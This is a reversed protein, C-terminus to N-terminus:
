YRTLFTRADLSLEGSFSRVAHAPPDSWLFPTPYIYNGRDWFVVSPNHNKWIDCTITCLHPLLEGSISLLIHWAVGSRICSQFLRKLHGGLKFFRQLNPTIRIGSLHNDPNKKGQMTLLSVSCPKHAAKNKKNKCKAM